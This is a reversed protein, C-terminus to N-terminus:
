DPLKALLTVTLNLLRGDSTDITGSAKIVKEGLRSGDPKIYPKWVGVGGFRWNTQEGSALHRLWVDHFKFNSGSPSLAQEIMSKVTEKVLWPSRAGVVKPTLAAGAAKRAVLHVSKQFASIVM